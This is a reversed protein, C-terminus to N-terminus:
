EFTFKLERKSYGKFSSIPTTRFTGHYLDIYHTVGRNPTDSFQLYHYLDDYNAKFRSYDYDEEILLRILYRPGGSYPSSEYYLEDFFDYLIRGDDYAKDFTNFFVTTENNLGVIEYNNFYQVASTIVNNFKSDAFLDIVNDSLPSDFNTVQRHMANELNGDYNHNLEPLPMTSNIGKDKWRDIMLVIKADIKDRYYSTYPLLGATFSRADLEMPDFIRLLPELITETGTSGNIKRKVGKVDFEDFRENTNLTLEDGSYHYSHGGSNVKDEFSDYRSTKFFHTILAVEGFALDNVPNYAEGLDLTDLSRVQVDSDVVKFTQELMIPGNGFRAALSKPIAKRVLQMCYYTNNEFTPLNWNLSSASVPNEIDIIIPEDKDKEIYRVYYEYDFDNNNQKFAESHTESFTITKASAYREDQLYYRQMNIPTSWEVLDNIDILEGVSFTFATDLQWVQGGERVWTGGLGDATLYEKAKITLSVTYNKFSKFSKEKDLMLLKGDKLLKEEEIAFDNGNQKTIKVNQYVPKVYYPSPDGDEDLITMETIEDMPFTFTITPQAFHSVDSDGDAPFTEAIIPVGGFPNGYEPICKEGVEVGITKQCKILGGLVRIQLGVRGDAYFPNPGGGSLMMAAKLGFLELDHEKGFAKFRFGLGGDLGGYIQGQGYWGNIGIEKGTNSCFLNQNKTVNIDFGLFIKLKAYVGFADVDLNVKGEVGLALGTGNKANNISSSSRDVSGSITGSTLKNGGKKNKKGFLDAVDDPIPLETPLEHGLMFYGGAGIEALGEFGIHLGCRNDPDGIHLYWNGKAEGAETTGTFNSAHLHVEGMLNDVGAGRIVGFANVYATFRGDFAFQGPAPNEFTLGVGAWVKPNDRSTLPTMMFADGDISLLSLRFNDANDIEAQISVDMNLLSSSPWVGLTGAMKLGYSGFNPSPPSSTRRLASVDVNKGDALQDQLNIESLAGEIDNEYSSRTMNYSIGGGVGYLAIPGAVPVAGTSGFYAMGDLYWYPYNESTNWEARPDGTRSGFEAGMALGVGMPLIVELAGRVGQTGLDEPNKDNYFELDGYLKLGMVDLDLSAGSVDFGTLQLTKIDTGEMASPLNIVTSAGFGSAGPSLSILPEIVFKFGGESQTPQIDLKKLSLPLGVFEEKREENGYGFGSFDLSGASGSDESNDTLEVGGLLAFYEESFGDKSNYKFAFEVLSLELPLMDVDEVDEDDEYQNTGINLGGALFTEFYTGEANGPQIRGEVYSNELLEASALMFPMDIDDEPSVNMIYQVPSGDDYDSEAITATYRLYQREKTIPMGLQGSFGGEVLSNNEISIFLSDMSIAWGDVNGEDIPLLDNVSINMSLTPDIIGHNIQASARGGNGLFEKPCMIQGKELYFGTWAKILSGDVVDPHDDPYVMNPVNSLESADYWMNDIAFAWGELGKFQFSDIEIKALFHLGSEWPVDTDGGLQYYVNQNQDVAREVTFGLGGTVQGEGPTGDETDPVIMSRPFTIDAKISLAKLGNCDMQLYCAEELVDEDDESGSGKLTVTVEGGTNIPRDYGMHMVFENGFGGPHMCTETSELSVWSDPGMAPIQFNCATNVYATTADWRMSTVAVLLSTGNISQDLGLPLDLSAESGALGVVLRTADIANYMQELLYPADSAEKATVQGDIMRGDTNVKINTFETKVYVENLWDVKIRGTGTFSGNQSSEFELEDMIFHGVKITELETSTTPTDNGDLTFHCNEYCDSQAETIENPLETVVLSPDYGYWFANINSRGGNEFYLDEGNTLEVQAAYQYGETLPALGTSVDYFFSNDSSPNSTFVAPLTGTEILDFISENAAAISDLEYLKLVYQQSGDLATLNNNTWNFSIPVDVPVEDGDIPYILEINGQNVEFPDSCSAPSLFVPAVAPDDNYEILQVCIQYEGAPLEGNIDLAIDDSVELDSISVDSYNNGIVVSGFTITRNAISTFPRSPRFDDRFRVFTSGDTSEISVKVYFDFDRDSTNMVTTFFSEANTTWLNFQKPFPPVVSIEVGLPIQAQLTPCLCCLLIILSVLYKM